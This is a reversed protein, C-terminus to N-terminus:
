FLSNYKLEVKENNMEQLSRINENLSRMEEWVKSASSFSNRDTDDRATRRIVTRGSIESDYELSRKVLSQTISTITM